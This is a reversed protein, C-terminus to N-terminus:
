EEDWKSTIKTFTTNGMASAVFRLPVSNSRSKKRISEPIAM